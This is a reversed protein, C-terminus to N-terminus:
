VKNIDTLNFRPIRRLAVMSMACALIASVAVGAVIARWDVDKVFWATSPELSAVSVAGMIAGLVLGVLIGLATLVITDNYIYRKADKVSFGNIMLVILERKKEEIFMVNLNLLVVIAMLVSLALYILVVTASVSSFAAFVGYQATKDDSMERFGEVKALKDPLDASAQATNALIVNPSAENGYVKKYTQPSMVIEHFTLYFEYFGTITLHHEAGDSGNVIIEDGPQAGYHTAYAQSMWVGEGKPDYEGGSTPNVHYVEDFSDDTPVVVTLIGLDGDPLKLAQKQRLVQATQLGEDELAKEVTDLSNEVDSDVRVVADYGFVNEYHRDYSALVDDNLTVATVVLATCGAVGVITSFVRKKDNLCNNVITQTYLPLKEWIAWKEFFRPKGRPPEEGKLLEIAHKKLISRCALWTAGLVLVLEIATAILALPVGFYPPYDGMIFRAGLAHGIIIEVVFVGVLLGVIAGAIVALAAYALFSTTIERRHLGLAKKTGIQTIQERVIRGVASYSVLLGVILFLGAMSFSLRNTVGSLTSAEVVGGNYSRGAVTWTYEKLMGLRDKADQLDTEKQAIQQEADELQPTKEAVLAKGDELQQRAEALRAEGAAAQARADDLMASAEDLKRQADSVKNDFEKQKKALEARAQEIWQAGSEQIIGAEALTLTQGKVTITASEAEKLAAEAQARADDLEALLDEFIHTGLKDPLTPLSPLTPLNAIIEVDPYAAKAQEIAGNLADILGQIRDYVSKFAAYAPAVAAWFEEETIKGKQFLAYQATYTQMFDNYAARAAQVQASAEAYKVKLEEYAAEAEALDKYAKDLDKQASSRKSNYEKQKSNFLAEGDAIRAYGDALQQEGDAIQREGDAIKQKAEDIQAWGDAVTKKADQLQSEGDKIKQEAEDHIAHFRADALKEGPATIRAAIERSAVAYEDSFTDMGTLAESRVNVHTFGDRYASADFAEPVVWAVTDVSGSGSTSFGFTNSSRAVYEPSDVLATITYTDGNLYAMGDDSGSQEQGEAPEAPNDDPLVDHVFTVKDGVALGLYEANTAMWAIENPKTPLSGERVLPVDISKGISQVKVSRPREGIDLTQDSQRTAEVEDVGEIKQLEAIDSETLGYPFQVQFHHFNGQDFVGTAATQLAPGSWSIGAYIGVGLAVFMLISFFSVFTKKINAILETIQTPKM